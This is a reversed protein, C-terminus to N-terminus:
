IPSKGETHSGASAIVTTTIQLNDTLTERVPLFPIGGRVPVNSGGRGGATRSTGGIQQPIAFGTDPRGLTGGILKWGTAARSEMAILLDETRSPLLRRVYYAYLPLGRGVIGLGALARSPTM